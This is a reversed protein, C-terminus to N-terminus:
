IRMHVVVDVVIVVDVVFVDVVFVDVVDVVIVVVINAPTNVSQSKLQRGVILDTFHASAM